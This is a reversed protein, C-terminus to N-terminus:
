NLIKELAQIVQSDHKDRNAKKNLKSYAAKSQADDYFYAKANTNKIQKKWFKVTYDVADDSDSSFFKVFYKGKEDTVEISATDEDVYCMDCKPQRNGDDLSSFKSEAKQIFDTKDHSFWLSPTTNIDTEFQIVYIM